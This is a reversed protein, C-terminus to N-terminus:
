VQMSFYLCTMYCVDHIFYPKNNGGQEDDNLDQLSDAAVFGQAIRPLAGRAQHATHLDSHDRM